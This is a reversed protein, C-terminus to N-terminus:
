PARRRRGRAANILLTYVVVLFAIGTYVAPSILGGPIFRGIFFSILNQTEESDLFVEFRLIGRFALVGFFLNALPWASLEFVFRFSSLLLALSLLYIGFSFFGSQLRAFLQESVMAFDLGLSTM